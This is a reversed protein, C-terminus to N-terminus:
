EIQFFHSQHQKDNFSEFEVIQVTTIYPTSLGNTNSHTQSQIPKNPLCQFGNTTNRLKIHAPSITPFLQNSLCFASFTPGNLPASCIYIYINKKEHKM